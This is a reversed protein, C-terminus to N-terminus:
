YHSVTFSVQGGHIQRKIEGCIFAQICVLFRCEDRTLNLAKNPSKKQM